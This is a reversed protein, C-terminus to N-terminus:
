IDIARAQFAHNRAYITMVHRSLPKYDIWKLVKASNSLFKQM